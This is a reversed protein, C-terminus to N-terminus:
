AGPALPRGYREHLLQGLTDPRDTVIGDVGWDLLRDMDERENVTWVHVDLGQRHVGRVFAPTVVTRDGFREPVQVVDGPLRWFAGLGWQNMLVFPRLQESSPSTAGAHHDAFLTRDASNMGALVVRDAANFRSLAAFLPVQATGIKVEITIRAAALEELVEAITPIRIGRGRFPYSRGDPTFRYGADLERLEALTMAAVEGSGDTTRDVTEDHIVVCHGDASSRVDLEVMDAAWTDLGERFAAMTNEPALGAGGRHAILLPRGALVDRRARGRRDTRRAAAAIVSVSAALAMM